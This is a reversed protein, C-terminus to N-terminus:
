KTLKMGEMTISNHCLLFFYIKQQSTFEQLAIPQTKKKNNNNQKTKNQKKPHTHM